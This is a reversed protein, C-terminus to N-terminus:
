GSNTETKDVLARVCHWQTSGFEAERENVSNIFLLCLYKQPPRTTLVGHKEHLPCLNSGQNPFYSGECQM